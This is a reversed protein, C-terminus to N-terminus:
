EPLGPRAADEVRRWRGGVLVEHPLFRAKYDMTRAGRIWYGLYYWRLGRRRALDVEAIVSYVGISRRGEDPDFFHYVSSLADDAVDLVSVGALRGGPLRYEVEISEVCTTYLFERLGEEDSPQSTGAHQRELYRRYLDVKEPTIRPRGVTVLLDRNRRACRRQSRSLRLTSTDIRIQRCADCSPCRPRYIVRGSRRFNQDLLERYNAALAACVYVEDRATNGELYPCPRQPASVHFCLPGLLDSIKARREKMVEM